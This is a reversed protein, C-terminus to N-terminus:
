FSVIAVMRDVRSSTSFDIEVGTDDGGGGGGCGSGGSGCGVSGGGGDGTEFAFKALHGGGGGSCGGGGSGCGVGGGGGSCLLDGSKFMFEALHGM